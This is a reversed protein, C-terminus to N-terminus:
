PRAVSREREEAADLFRDYLLVDPTKGEKNAIFTVCERAIRCYAASPRWDDCQGARYSAWILMRMKRPLSFWHRKCMFMKPPVKTQCDTAHCHHASMTARDGEASQAVGADPGREALIAEIPLDPISGIWADGASPAADRLAEIESACEAAASPAVSHVQAWRAEVRRCITIAEELARRRPTQDSESM